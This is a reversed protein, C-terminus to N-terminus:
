SYALTKSLFYCVYWWPRTWSLFEDMGNTIKPQIAYLIERDIDSGNTRLLEQTFKKMGVEDSVDSGHSNLLSSIFKKRKHESARAHFFITIKNKKRWGLRRREKHSTSNKMNMCCLWIRKKRLQVKKKKKPFRDRLTSLDEKLRQIKKQLNSFEKQELLNVWNHM